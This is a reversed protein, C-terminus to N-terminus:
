SRAGKPPSSPAAVGLQDAYETVLRRWDFQMAEGGVIRGIPEGALLQELVDFCIHWGAAGWLIFGRITHQALAHPAHRQRATRAAMPYRQRGMSIRAAKPRRRADRADRLDSADSNRGNLSQRASRPSAVTPTSHHGNSSRKPDTLAQWVKAPPHRLERVLILTWKEWGQRVEAGAAQGPKYNERSSM